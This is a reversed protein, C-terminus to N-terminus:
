FGAFGRGLFGIVVGIGLYKLKSLRSKAKLTVIVEANAKNDADHSSKESQIAAQCSGNLTTQNEIETGQKAVMGKLDLIDLRAVPLEELQALVEQSGSTDLLVGSGTTPVTATGKSLFPQYAQAVQVPTLTPIQAQQSILKADRNSIAQALQGIQAELQANQQSLLAIQAQTQAQIQANQRATDAAIAQYQAATASDHKAVVYEIGFVSAFVLLVVVGLLLIHTKLWSLDYEIKSVISTDTPTAM